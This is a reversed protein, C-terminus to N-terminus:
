SPTAGALYRSNNSMENPRGRLTPQSATWRARRSAWGLHSTVNSDMGARSPSTTCRRLSRFSRAVYFDRHLFCRLGTGVLNAEGELCPWWLRTAIMACLNNTKPAVRGRLLACLLHHEISRDHGTGCVERRATPQVLCGAISTRRNRVRDHDTSVRASASM